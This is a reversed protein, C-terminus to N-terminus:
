SDDTVEHSMDERQGVRSRVSRAGQGSFVVTAVRSLLGPGALCAAGGCAGPPVGTRPWRSAQSSASRPIAAKHTTYAWKPVRTSGLTWVATYLKKSGPSYPTSTKKMILPYMTGADSSRL